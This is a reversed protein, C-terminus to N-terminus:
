SSYSELFDYLEAETKIYIGAKLREQLEESLYRTEIGTQMFIELRDAEYVTIRGNDEKVYFLYSSYEQNTIISDTKDKALEETSIYERDPQKNVSFKVLLIALVLILISLLISISIQHKM